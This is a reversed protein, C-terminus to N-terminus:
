VYRKNNSIHFLSTTEFNELVSLFKNFNNKLGYYHRFRLFSLNRNLRPQDPDFEWPHFYFVVPEQRNISLSILYKNLLMPFFRFYVGGSNPFNGLFTKITTPPFEWIGCKLKHPLRPNDKMGYRHNIIPFISSDYKIGEECLIDIAWLSEKTISFYPARFSIIEKGTLDSLLDISKKLDDRFETATQNYIFKHAYGHSAIEHGHNFIKKILLPNRKAIDGLIFFTATSKHESLFDLILNTGYDVRQEYSTWNAPNVDLSHYWDEVDITLIVQHHNNMKYYFSRQGNEM